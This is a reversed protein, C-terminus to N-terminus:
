DCLILCVRYSEESRTILGDCLGTGVCSLVAYLCLLFVDMSRTPNSGAVGAVSRGCVQVESRAAMPLPVLSLGKFDAM